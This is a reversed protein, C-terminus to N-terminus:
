RGRVNGWLWIHLRPSFNFNHQKCKEVLWLSREKLIEDTTGEPMFYVKEKPIRLRLVITHWYDFDEEDKVVFKFIVNPFDKVTVLFDLDEFGKKPSITVVDFFPYIHFLDKNGNTEVETTYDKLRDIIELIEDAYLGPEGGTFIINTVPFTKIIKIIESVKMEKGEYWAYKTDCEIPCKEALDCGSVRVFVSPKGVNKGEGQISCFIESIKIERM